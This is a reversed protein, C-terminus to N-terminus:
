EQNLHTDLADAEDESLVADWNGAECKSSMSRQLFQLSCGCVGCCPQTGPMFCKDGSRDIFDCSQCIENRISAIEEVHENKFVANKIGELIQGKQKWVELLTKGM